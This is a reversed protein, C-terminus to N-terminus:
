FKIKVKGKEKKGKKIKWHPGEKIVRLAEEDCDSCLSKAINVNSIKGDRQVDFSVEVEGHINKQLVEPPPTLNNNLYTNYNSWGDAPEVNLLTDVQMANRSEVNSKKAKSKLQVIDKTAFPAENLVITNKGAGSALSFTRSAFGAARVEISLVSDVGVLRFKGNVDAYTGVNEAPINIKAFPLPTKDPGIVEAVFVHNMAAEKKNALPEPNQTVSKDFENLNDTKAAANNAAAPATTIVFNRESNVKQEETIYGASENQIVQVRSNKSPAKVVTSDAVSTPKVQTILQKNNNQKTEPLIPPNNLEVNGAISNITDLTDKKVSAITATRNQKFASNNLLYIVGTGGTIILIAAVAKRWKFAVTIPVVKTQTQLNEIKRRAEQLEKKWNAKKMEAYGEMAEALFPDDLAAKEIAHMQVPLLKGSFYHEIDEATYIINQKDNNM